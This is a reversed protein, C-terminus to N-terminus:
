LEMLVLLYSFPFAKDENKFVVEMFYEMASTTMDWHGYSQYLVVELWLLLQSIYNIAWM